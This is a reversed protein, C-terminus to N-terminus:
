MFTIGEEQLSTKIIELLRYKEQMFLESTVWAKAQMKIRGPCLKDINVDMPKDQCIFEESAMKALLAQKLQSIDTEYGVTFDLILLRYPEKSTNTVNSNTITGNPIVVMRNDSTILRTYFIDISNVTGEAGAAIIYDGVQFPKMMLILVGGAFNSLSGQLALGIALGASGIIAVISSTGVGLVGAITFLLLLNLVVNLVSISFKHVSIEIEKKEMWRKSLKLVVKIIRRGILFVILAILITKLFNLLPERQNLLYQMLFNYKEAASADSEIKGVVEQMDTVDSSVSIIGVSRSTIAYFINSATNM